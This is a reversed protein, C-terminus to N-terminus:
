ARRAIALLSTGGPLGWGQGLPLAEWGLQARMVGGLLPRVKLEMLTREEVASMEAPDTRGARRSLWMLPLLALLFPTLQEGQQRQHSRFLM